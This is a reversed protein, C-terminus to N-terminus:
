SFDGALKALDPYGLGSGPNFVQGPTGTYYLNDNSTGQSSLPTFPSSAGVAFDYIAPNWLGARHGIYQDIVAAAGNMQAAGFSTGGWGSQLSPSALPDYLLYGTFPDADTALDPVGRGTGDGQQVVPTATFSWQTPLYLGDVTGFDAPTLYQVDSYSGSNVAGQQDLMEQYLPVPEFTSFGGGGGAAAAAAFAEETPFGFKAYDPWLWDWGWTRQASITAKLATSGVTASVTGDLTTGGVSTVFPSDDPNGVSLNTTGLDGAADYAGADGAAVFTSQGQAALELFAEDFAQAYAPTEGGATVAAQLITESEGWSSSLTDALNQSAAAFFADAYGGETNPAAYVVVNAGPALAGAQEVDLDSEASGAAESPAGPGDDVNYVTIRNSSPTMDLVNNWFHYATAPDFGALTVIGVTEGKGTSGSNYLPDLDYDKAFDAPTLNGTLAATPTVTNAETVGKPTHVLDASFPAYNTLGLVALVSPAISAPLYPDQVTGHVEQAPIAALGDHGAMAPVKYQQQQVSLASDFQAATGTATVDLDDPYVSTSIGYKNLYSELATIASGAQGYRSAFQAVTLDPSQGTEIASELSFLNRGHLVFSVVEPTASPTAGAVAANKLVAPGLGQAVPAEGSPASPAATFSSAQYSPVTLAAAVIGAVALALALALAGIRRRRSPEALKVAHDGESVPHSFRVSAYDRLSLVRSKGFTGSGGYVNLCSPLLAAYRWTQVVRRPAYLFFLSAKVPPRFIGNIGCGAPM